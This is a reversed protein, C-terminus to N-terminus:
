EETLEFAESEQIFLVNSLVVVIYGLEEKTRECVANTVSVVGKQTSLHDALRNNPMRHLEGRIVRGDLLFIRHTVPTKQGRLGGAGARPNLATGM